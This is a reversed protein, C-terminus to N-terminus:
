GKGQRQNTISGNDVSIQIGKVYSSQLTRSFTADQIYEFWHNKFKEQLYHKKKLNFKDSIAEM